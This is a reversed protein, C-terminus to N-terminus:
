VDLFNEQGLDTKPKPFQGEPHSLCNQLCTWGRSISKSSSIFIENSGDTLFVLSFVKGEGEDQCINLDTECLQLSHLKRPPSNMVWDVNLILLFAFNLSNTNEIIYNTQFLEM